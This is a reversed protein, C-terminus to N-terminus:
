FLFVELPTICVDLPIDHWESEIQDIPTFFNVGVKLVGSELTNLFVDYYGKGYGIRNGKKDCILLPILVLEIQDTPVVQKQRPIPIGWADDNLDHIDTLSVTELIGSKPNLISTYLEYGERLLEEILPFINVENLKLIPLFLHIHCLQKRENLFDRIRQRTQISLRDIEEETLQKRKEKFLIRIDEKTM